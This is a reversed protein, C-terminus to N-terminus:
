RISAQMALSGPRGVSPRSKWAGARISPANVICHGILSRGAVVESGNESRCPGDRLVARFVGIRNGSPYLSGHIWAIDLIQGFPEQGSLQGNLIKGVSEARVGMRCDRVHPFGLEIEVAAAAAAEGLDDKGLTFRDYGELLYEM